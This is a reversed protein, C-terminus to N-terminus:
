NNWLIEGSLVNIKCETLFIWFLIIFYHFTIGLKRLKMLMEYLVSLKKGSSIQIM